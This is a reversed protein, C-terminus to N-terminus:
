DFNKTRFVFDITLNPCNNLAIMMKLEELMEGDGIHIWSLELNKNISKLIQFILHLRKLAYVNSCSIFRLTPSDKLNCFTAYNKTGLYSLAIKEKQINYRSILKTQIDKSIPLLLQASNYIQQRLPLYNRNREEYFDAGHMRIVKTFASLKPHPFFSQGAWYSYLIVDNPKFKYSLFKNLGVGYSFVALLWNKFRLPDKYVRYKIFESLFVRKVKLNSVGDIFKFKGQRLTIDFVQVNDPCTRKESSFPNYTPILVVNKFCKSLYYLENEFYTEREGYPYSATFCVLTKNIM